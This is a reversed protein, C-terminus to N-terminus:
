RLIERQLSFLHAIKKRLLAKKLEAEYDKGHIWSWINSLHQKKWMSIRMSICMGYKTFKHGHRPRTGNKDYRHSRNKMKLRTKKIILWVIENFCVSKNKACKKFYRMNNKSSSMFSSITYNEFLFLEAETHQKAKAQNKAFKLRSNSRFTNGIFFRKNRKTLTDSISVCLHDVISATLWADPNNPSM